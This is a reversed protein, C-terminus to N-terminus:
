LIEHNVAKFGFVVNLSSSFLLPPPWISEGVLSSNAGWRKEGGIRGTFLSKRQPVGEPKIGRFDFGVNM